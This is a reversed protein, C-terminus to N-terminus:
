EGSSPPAYTRGSLGSPGSNSWAPVGRRSAAKDETTASVPAVALWTTSAHSIPPSSGTIGSTPADETACSSSLRPATSRSSEASCLARSSWAPQAAAAAVPIREGVPVLCQLPQELHHAVTEDDDVLERDSSPWGM